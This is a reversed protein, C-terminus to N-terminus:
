YSALMQGSVTDNNDIHATDQVTITSNPPVCLNAPLPCNGTLGSFNFPLNAGINVQVNQSATIALLGNPVQYIINGAADKLTFSLTRTGVTATAIFNFAFSTLLAWEANNLPLAVGNVGGLISTAFFTQFPVGTRDSM